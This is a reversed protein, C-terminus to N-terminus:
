GRSSNTKKLTRRITEYSVGDLDDFLAVMRGALLRLSWRGRGSPPESCSLAILHAEQAGDLKRPKRATVPRREVAADLGETAFRRRVREVTPLSVDLATVIQEDKWSPGDAGEDAKLLIRAHTLAQASGRGRRIRELLGAREADSLVVRHQKKM